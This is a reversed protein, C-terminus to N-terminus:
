LGGPYNDRQHRAPSSYQPWPCSVIHFPQLLDARGQLPLPCLIRYGWSLPRVSTGSVSCSCQARYCLQGPASLVSTKCMNDGAYSLVLAM